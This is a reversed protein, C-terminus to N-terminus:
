PTPRVIPAHPNVPVDVYIGQRASIEDELADRIGLVTAVRDGRRESAHCARTEPRKSDLRWLGSFTRRGPVPEVRQKGRGIRCCRVAPVVGENSSHHAERPRCLTRLGTSESRM